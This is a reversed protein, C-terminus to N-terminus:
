DAMQSQREHRANVQVCGRYDPQSNFCMKAPDGKTFTVCGWCMWRGWTYWKHRNEQRIEACLQWAIDKTIAEM